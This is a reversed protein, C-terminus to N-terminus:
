EVVPCAQKITQEGPEGKKPRNPRHVICEFRTRELTLATLRVCMRAQLVRVVWLTLVPVWTSSEADVGIQMMFAVSACQENNTTANFRYLGPIELAFYINTEDYMCKYTPMGLDYETVTLPQLVSSTIGEVSAWETTDGDLVPATTTAMCTWSDPCTQAHHLPLLNAPGLLVLAITSKSYIM